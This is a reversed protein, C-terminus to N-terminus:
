TIDVKAFYTPNYWESYTDALVLEAKRKSTEPSCDVVILGMYLYNSLGNEQLFKDKFLMTITYDRDKCECSTDILSKDLVVRESSRVDIPIATAVGNTTKPFVYISNYSYKETGFLMLHIGDSANTDYNGIETFCFDDDSVVFTIKLDEDVKETSVSCSLKSEQEREFDKVFPKDLVFGEGARIHINKESRKEWFEDIFGSLIDAMDKHKYEPALLRKWLTDHEDDIYKMSNVVQIYGDPFANPFISAIDCIMKKFFMRFRQHELDEIIDSWIIEDHYKESFLAIEYARYLFRKTKPAKVDAFLSHLSYHSWYTDQYLHYILHLWTATPNFTSLLSQNVKITQVNNLLFSEDISFLPNLINRHLELLVDGKALTVHHMNKLYKENVLLFGSNVLLEYANDFDEKNVFIDVDGSVRSYPDGYLLQSLIVGKFIIYKISAQELIDCIEYIISCQKKRWIENLLLVDKLESNIEYDGKLLVSFLNNELLVNPIEETKYRESLYLKIDNLAGM